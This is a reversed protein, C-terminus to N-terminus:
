PSVCVPVVPCVDVSGKHLARGDIELVYLCAPPPRKPDPRLRFALTSGSDSTACGSVLSALGIVFAAGVFAALALVLVAVTARGSQSPPAPARGLLSGGVGMMGAGGLVLGIWIASDSPDLAPRVVVVSVIILLLGFLTTLASTLLAAWWPRGPAATAPTPDTAAM